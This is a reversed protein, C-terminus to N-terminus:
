RLSRTIQEGIRKACEPCREQLDAISREISIKGDRLHSLDVDQLPSRHNYGRREMETALEGHRKHLTRPELLGDRLYGEVSIGKNIAGMFMHHEVHEGLLHKRCLFVPNVLWQRM